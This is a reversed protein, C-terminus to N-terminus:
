DRYQMGAIDGDDVGIELEELLNIELNSKDVLQALSQDSDAIQKFRVLYIQPPLDM